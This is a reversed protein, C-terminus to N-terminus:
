GQFKKLLADSIKFNTAALLDIATRLDLLGRDHAEQLIGLTGIVTLGIRVAEKRGLLEDILLLSGAAGSHALIIAEREGDDLRPHLPLTIRGPTRIELWPPPNSMWSRVSAPALPDLLEDQVAPPTLVEGYMVGLIDIQQILILYNLPSTDAVVIM